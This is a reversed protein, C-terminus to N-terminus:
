ISNQPSSRQHARPLYPLPQDRGRAHHRHGDGNFVIRNYQAIAVPHLELNHCGSHVMDSIFFKHRTREIQRLFTYASRM